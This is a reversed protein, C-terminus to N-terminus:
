YMTADVFHLGHRRLGPLHKNDSSYDSLSDRPGESGTRTVRAMAETNIEVQIGSHM